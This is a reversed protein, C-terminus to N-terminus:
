VLSFFVSIMVFLELLLYFSPFYYFCIIINIIIVIYKSRKGRKKGYIADAKKRM